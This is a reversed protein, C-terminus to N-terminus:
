DDLDFELSEGAEYWNKLGEQNKYFCGTYNGRSNVSGERKYAEKMHDEIKELLIESLEEIQDENEYYFSIDNNGKLIEEEVIKVSLEDLFRDANDSDDIFGEISMEKEIEAQALRMLKNLTEM